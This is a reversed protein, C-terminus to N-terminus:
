AEDLIVSHLSEEGVIIPVGNTPAVRSRAAAIGSGLPQHTRARYPQILQNLRRSRLLRKADCGPVRMGAVSRQM